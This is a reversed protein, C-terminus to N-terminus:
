ESESTSSASEGRYEEFRTPCLPEGHRAGIIAATPSSPAGAFSLPDLVSTSTSVGSIIETRLVLM